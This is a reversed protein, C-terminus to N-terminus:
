PAAIGDDEPDAEHRARAEAWEEVLEEQEFTEISGPRATRVTDMADRASLGQISVLCCALITGTRGYGASCHVVVCGKRAIEDEAFGVADALNQPDPVGFDRIPLHHSRLGAEQLAAKPLASESLSIVATVGHLDAMERLAADLGAGTGPWACGALRGKLVFSFNPIMDTHGRNGVDRVDTLCVAGLGRLSFFPGVDLWM